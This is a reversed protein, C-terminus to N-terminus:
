TGSVRDAPTAQLQTQSGRGFEGQLVALMQTHFRAENFRLAHTHLEVPDFHTWALFQLAEALCEASQETFLIGTRNNVVTECAGGVGYAIVPCGYAMAEVPVMGFDEEGPFLLAAARRLHNRVVDDPQWGLVEVHPATARDIGALDPGDGIVVLKRGTLRAAAVALDLRKYPVHHGVCLLFDERPATWPEPPVEVPPHIVVASKGYNRQIRQAVHRSNAIFLDVRQAAQRDVGRLWRCLHPWAPRLLAPVARQYDDSLDWAYRMPSHCYCVVRSQPAARMAKALGADSCLVLDVPPLRVARAAWPMLPLLKPYHRGAGPLWQLPSTHIPHRLLPSEPLGARRCVLTYIPCQPFLAALSELVKEGGRRRVLWHHTLVVSGTFAAPQEPQFPM